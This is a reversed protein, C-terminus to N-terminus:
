YAAFSETKKLTKSPDVEFAPGPEAFVVIRTVREGSLELTAVGTDRLIERGEFTKFKGGQSKPLIGLNWLSQKDIWTFVSGKDVLLRFSKEPEAMRDGFPKDYVDIGNLDSLTPDYKLNPWTKM